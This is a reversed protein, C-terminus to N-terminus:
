DGDVDTGDESELLMLWSSWRFRTALPVHFHRSIAKALETM